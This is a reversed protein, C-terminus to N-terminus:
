PEPLLERMRDLRQDTNWKKWEPSEFLQQFREPDKESGKKMLSKLQQGYESFPATVENKPILVRKFSEEMRNLKLELFDPNTGANGRKSLLNVTKVQEKTVGKELVVANSPLTASEPVFVDIYDDGATRGWRGSGQVVTIKGDKVSALGPRAVQELNLIEGTEQRKLLAKYETSSSLMKVNLSSGGQNVPSVVHYAEPNMKMEAKPLPGWADQKLNRSGEGLQMRLEQYQKLTIKSQGEIKEIKQIADVAARGASEFRGSRYRLDTSLKQNFGKLWSHRQELIRDAAREADRDFYALVAPDALEDASAGEKKFEEVIREREKAVLSRRETRIAELGKQDKPIDGYRALDLEISKEWHDSGNKLHVRFAGDADLQNLVETTSLPARDVQDAMQKHVKSEFSSFDRTKGLSGKAQYLRDKHDAGFIDTVPREYQQRFLDQVESERVGRLEKMGQKLYQTSEDASAFSQYEKLTASVNLGEGDLSKTGGKTFRYTKGPKGYTHWHGAEHELIKSLAARREFLDRRLAIVEHIGDTANKQGKVTKKGLYVGDFAAASPDNPVFEVVKVNKKKLAVLTKKLPDSDPIKDVLIERYEYDYMTYKEGTVPSHLSVKQVANEPLPAGKARMDLSRAGAAAGADGKKMAESKQLFDELRKIEADVDIKKLAPVDETKFNKKIRRLDEIQDRVKQNFRPDPPLEGELRNKLSYSRFDGSLQDEIQKGASRLSSELSQQEGKLKKLNEALSRTRIDIRTEADRAGKMSSNGFSGSHTKKMEALESLAAEQDAIRKEIEIRKQSSPARKSLETFEDNMGTGSYRKEFEGLTTLSEDVSKSYSPAPAQISVPVPKSAGDPEIRKRKLMEAWEDRTKGLKKQLIPNSHIMGKEGLLDSLEKLEKDLAPDFRTAGFKQTYLENRRDILGQLQSQLEKPEASALFEEMKPKSNPVEKIKRIDFGGADAGVVGDVMLNERTRADLGAEALIRNKEAIQNRTYNGKAARKGDKGIKGEGVLHAKWVAEKESETLPRGASKEALVDTIAREKSEHLRIKEDLDKLLRKDKESLNSKSRIREAAAKTAAKENQVARIESRETDSIVGSNRRVQKRDAVRESRPNSSSSKGESVIQPGSESDAVKNGPNGSSSEGGAGVQGKQGSDAVKDGKPADAGEDAFKAGKAEMGALATGPKTPRKFLNQGANFVRKNLDAYWKIFKKGQDAPLKVVKVAGKAMPLKELTRIVAKASGSLAKLAFIGAKGALKGAALTGKGATRMGKGALNAAKALKPFKNALGAKAFKGAKSGKALISVVRAGVGTMKIAATAVGTFFAAVIETALYGMVACAGNIAEKCSLCEWGSSPKKCTSLHAVGSWEQCFADKMMWENIGNWIGGVFKKMSEGPEKIFDGILGGASKAFQVTKYSSADDIEYSAGFFNLMGKGLNKTGMWADQALGSIAQGALSLLGKVAEWLSKIIATAAQVACNDRHTDCSGTKIPIGMSIASGAACLIDKGCNGRKAKEEKTCGPETNEEINKAAEKVEKFGPPVVGCARDQIEKFRTKENVRDLARLNALAVDRAQKCDITQGEVVVSAYMSKKDPTMCHNEVLQLLRQTNDFAEDYNEPDVGPAERPAQDSGGAPDKSIRNYLATCLSYNSSGYPESSCLNDAAQQVEQLVNPNSALVGNIEQDHKASDNLYEAHCVQTAQQRFDDSICVNGFIAPNCALKGSGCGGLGEPEACVRRGKGIKKWSSKWGAFFCSDSNEQAFARPLGFYRQFLDRAGKIRADLGDYREEISPDEAAQHELEYQLFFDRLARLSEARGEPTSSAKKWAKSIEERSRGGVTGANKECRFSEAVKGLMVGDSGSRNAAHLSKLHFMRKGCMLFYSTQVQPVGNLEYEFGIRYGDIRNKENRIVEYPLEKLWKGGEQKSLWAKRKEYYTAADRKLQGHEFRVNELEMDYVGINPRIGTKSDMPGVLSLGVGWLKEVPALGGQNEFGVQYVGISHLKPSERSLKKILREGEADSMETIQASAGPDFTNARAPIWVQFIMSFCSFLALIRGFFSGEM